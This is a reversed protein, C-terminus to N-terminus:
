KKADYMLITDCIAQSFRYSEENYLHVEDTTRYNNVENIFNIFRAGCNESEKLMISDFEPCVSKYIDCMRPGVVPRVWYVDGHQRLQISLEVLKSIRYESLKFSPICCDKYYPEIYTNWREEVTSEDEDKLKYPSIVQGDIIRKEQKQCIRYTDKKFLMYRCYYELNPSGAVQSCQHLSSACERYGSDSQYDTDIMGLSFPDVVCIYLGRGSKGFDCKKYIANNYVDGYPSESIDFAYNYIDCCYLDVLEKNLVGPVIDQAAMSTGLILSKCHPSAFKEYNKGKKGWPRFMFLGVHLFIFVLCFTIIDIIFRRM